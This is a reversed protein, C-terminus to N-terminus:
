RLLELATDIDLTAKSVDLCVEFIRSKQLGEVVESAAVM